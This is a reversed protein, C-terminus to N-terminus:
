IKKSRKYDKKDEYMRVDAEHMAESLVPSYGYPAYGISVTPIITINDKFILPEEVASKLDATFKLADFEDPKESIYFLFFEDGWFRSFIIRTSVWPIWLETDKWDARSSILQVINSAVYKLLLDWTTHGYTDNVKKLGNVDIAFVWLKGETCATIFRDFCIDKTIARRSIGTLEDTTNKRRTELEKQEIADLANFLTEVSAQINSIVKWILQIQENDLWHIMVDLKNPHSSSHFFSVRKSGHNNNWSVIPYRQSLYSAIWEEHTILNNERQSLVTTDWTTDPSSYAVFYANGDHSQILRILKRAILHIFACVRRESLELAHLGRTIERVMLTIDNMLQLCNNVFLTRDPERHKSVLNAGSM